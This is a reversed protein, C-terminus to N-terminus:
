TKFSTEEGGGGTGSDEQLPLIWRDRNGVGLGIGEAGLDTLYPVAVAILQM